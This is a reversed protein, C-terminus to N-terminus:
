RDFSFPFPVLQNLKKKTIPIGDISVGIFNFGSLDIGKLCPFLNKTFSCGMAYDFLVKYAKKYHTDAKSNEELIKSRDGESLNPRDLLRECTTKTLWYSRGAVKLTRTVNAGYKTLLEVMELNNEAASTELLYRFRIEGFRTLSEIHQLLDPESGNKLLYEAISIYGHEVALIIPENNGQKSSRPNQEPSINAGNEVLNQVELLNGSLVADRISNRSVPQNYSYKAKM